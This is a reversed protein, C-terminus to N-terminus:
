VFARMRQGLALGQAIGIRLTIRNLHVPAMCVRLATTRTVVEVAVTSFKPIAFALCISILLCVFLDCTGTVRVAFQEIGISLCGLSSAPLDGQHSQASSAISKRGEGEVEEANRGHECVGAIFLESALLHMNPSVVGM